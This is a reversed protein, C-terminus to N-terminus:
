SLRKRNRAMSFGAVVSGFLWITAPIPVTTIVNALLPSTTAVLHGATFGLSAGLGSAFIYTSELQSGSFLTAFGTLQHTNFGLTNGDFAFKDLKATLLDGSVYVGPLNLFPYPIEGSITLTGTNAIYAGNSSFLATLLFNAPHNANSTVDFNSVGNLSIPSGANSVALLFNGGSISSLSVQATHTFTPSGSPRLGPLQIVSASAYQSCAICVLVLVAFLRNKLM